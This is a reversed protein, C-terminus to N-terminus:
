YNKDYPKEREFQYFYEAVIKEVKENKNIKQTIPILEGEYNAIKKNKDFYLALKGLYEGEVGSQVIIKGNIKEPKALEKGFHSSVIIDFGNLSKALEVNKDYGIHSLIIIVDSKSKIESLSKKIADIYSEIKLKKTIDEPVFEFNEYTNIGIIGFNVGDIKKIIYPSVITKDDLTIINLSLLPLKTKKVKENFFTIGEIFEQDGINVADYELLEYAKIVYENRSPNSFTGLFDGSDILLVKEEKRIKDVITKRQSLGGLSKKTCECNKLNGNNNGTYLLTIKYHSM